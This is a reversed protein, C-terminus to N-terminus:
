TDNDEGAKQLFYERLKVGCESPNDYRTCDAPCFRCNTEVNGLENCALELAKELLEIRVNAEDIQLHLDYNANDSRILEEDIEAYKRELEAYKKELIKGAKIM